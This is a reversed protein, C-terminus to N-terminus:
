RVFNQPFLVVIIRYFPKKMMGSLGGEDPADDSDTEAIYDNDNEDVSISSLSAFSSRLSREDVDSEVEDAFGDSSSSDITPEDEEMEDESQDADTPDTLVLSVQQFSNKVRKSLREIEKVSFLKIHITEYKMQSFTACSDMLNRYGIDDVVGNGDELILYSQIERFIEVPFALM